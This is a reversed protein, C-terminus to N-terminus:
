KRENRRKNQLLFLKKKPIYYMKLYIIKDHGCEWKKKRVNFVNILEMNYTM